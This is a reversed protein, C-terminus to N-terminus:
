PRPLPRRDHASRQPSRPPFFPLLRDEVRVIAARAAQASPTGIAHAYLTRRDASFGMVVTGPMLTLTAALLTLAGDGQVRLPVAVIM